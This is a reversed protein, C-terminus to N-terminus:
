RANQNERGGSRSPKWRTLGVARTKNNQITRGGADIVFTLPPLVAPENGLDERPSISFM